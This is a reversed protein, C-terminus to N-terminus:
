KDGGYLYLFGVIGFAISLAINKVAEYINNGMLGMVADPLYCIGVAVFAIFVMKNKTPKKM